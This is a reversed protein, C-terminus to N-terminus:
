DMLFYSEQKAYVPLYWMFHIGLALDWKVSNDKLGTDTNFGRVSKTTALMSHVGLTWNIREDNDLHLYRLQGKVVPGVHLRDYGRLMAGQLQPFNGRENRLSIQTQQGGFGLMWMWGSNPNYHPQFIHGIHGTIQGGSLGTNLIALEGNVGVYNGASDALGGFIESSNKVSNGYFADFAGGIIWGDRNKKSYELSAGGFNSYRTALDGAPLSTSPGLGWLQVTRTSDKTTLQASLKASSLLMLAVFLSFRLPNMSVTPKLHLTLAILREYYHLKLANFDNKCRGLRFAFSHLNCDNSSSVYAQHGAGTQRIHADLYAANINVLLFYIAQFIADKGNIFRPQLVDDKAVKLLASQV